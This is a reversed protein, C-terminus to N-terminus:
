VHVEKLMNDTWHKNFNINDVLKILADKRTVIFEGASHAIILVIIKPLSQLLAKASETNTPYVVKNLGEDIGSNGLFVYLFASVPSQKQDWSSDENRGVELLNYVEDRVDGKKIMKDKRAKYDPMYLKVKEAFEHSFRKSDSRFDGLFVIISCDGGTLEALAAFMSMTLLKVKIYMTGLQLNKEARDVITKLKNRDPIDHFSAFINEADLTTFFNLIRRMALQYEHFKYLNYRLSMNTEPLLTWTHSLFTGLDNSAFNDVDRNALEVARQVSKTIDCSSLGLSFEHNVKKLRELLKLHPSDNRFPITSEICAAIQSLTGIDLLDKLSNIAILASLFENIGSSPLVQRKLKLGFISTVLSVYVDDNQLRNLRVETILQGTDCCISSNTEIAPGLVKAQEPTIIQDVQVYVIDHFISSLILIPDTSGECVDFIHQVSHFERSKQSMSELVIISMREVQMHSPSANLERLSSSFIRVLKEFYTSRPSHDTM